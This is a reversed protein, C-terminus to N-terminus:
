LSFSDVSIPLTLLKRAETVESAEAALVKSLAVVVVEVAILRVATAVVAITKQPTGHFM